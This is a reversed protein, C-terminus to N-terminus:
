VYADVLKGKFIPGRCAARIEENANISGVGLLVTSAVKSGTDYVIFTKLLDIDFRM